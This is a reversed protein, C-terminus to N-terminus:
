RENKMLGREELYIKMHRVSRFFNGKIKNYLDRYTQNDIRENEYLRKIFSRQKRVRNQWTEKRNTRANARGKRSGEGKQLGKKKQRLTANARARSVGKEAKKKINKKGIQIKIDHKTIAEKIEDMADENFVIKNQSCGIVESALRKQLKM